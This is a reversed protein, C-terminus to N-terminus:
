IHILSLHLAQNRKTAEVYERAAAHDAGRKERWYRYVLEDADVANEEPEWSFAAGDTADQWQILYEVRDQGANYRHLVIAEVAADELESENDDNM